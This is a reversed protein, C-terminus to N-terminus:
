NLFLKMKKQYLENIMGSFFDNLFKPFANYYEQITQPSEIASKKSYINLRSDWLKQGLTCGFEEKEKYIKIFLFKIMFLTPPKDLIIKEQEEYNISTRTIPIPITTDFDDNSALPRLIEFTKVEHLKETICTTASKGRVESRHHVHGGLNEYYICCISQSRKINEYARNCLNPYSQLAECKYQGICPVQINKKNLYWSHIACGAGRSFFTVYKNCSICRRWQIIGKNFDKIKKSSSQHLYKNDFQFHSDCVGLKSLIGDVEKIADRDVQWTGILNRLQRLKGTGECRRFKGEMYDIIVCSTFKQQELDDIVKDMENCIEHEKIKEDIDELEELDIDSFASTNDTNDNIYNIIENFKLSVRESESIEDFSEEESM